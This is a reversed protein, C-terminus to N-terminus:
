KKEDRILKDIDIKNSSLLTKAESIVQTVTRANLDLKSGHDM